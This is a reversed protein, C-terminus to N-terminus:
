GQQFGSHLWEGYAYKTQRPIATSWRPKHRRSLDWFYHDLFSINEQFIVVLHKIPTATHSDSDAFAPVLSPVLALTWAVLMELVKAPAGSVRLKKSV